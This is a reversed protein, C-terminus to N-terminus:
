QGDQAELSYVLALDSQPSLDRKLRRLDALLPEVTAQIRELQETPIDLNM